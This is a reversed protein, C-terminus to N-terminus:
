FGFNGAGRAVTTTTLGQLLKQPQTKSGYSKSENKNNKKTKPCNGQKNTRNKIDFVRSFLFIFQFEELCLRNESKECTQFSREM